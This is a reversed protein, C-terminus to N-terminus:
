TTRKRRIAMAVGYVSLAAVLSSPEPVVNTEVYSVAVEIVEELAEDLEAETLMNFQEQSIGLFEPTILGETGM